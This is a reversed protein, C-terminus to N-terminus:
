TGLGVITRKMAVTVQKRLRWTVGAGKLRGALDTYRVSLQGKFHPTGDDEHTALPCGRLRGRASAEDRVM